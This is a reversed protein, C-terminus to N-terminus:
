KLKKISIVATRPANTAVLVNNIAVKHDPAKTIVRLVGYDHRLRAEHPRGGPGAELPSPLVEETEPLIELMEGTEAKLTRFSLNVFVQLRLSANQNTVLGLPRQRWHPYIIKNNKRRRQPSENLSSTFERHSPPDSIM